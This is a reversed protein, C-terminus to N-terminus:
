VIIKIKGTLNNLLYDVRLINNKKLKNENM